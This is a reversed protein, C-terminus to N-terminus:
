ATHNRRRSGSATVVLCLSVANENFGNDTLLTDYEWIEWTGMQQGGGRAELHPGCVDTIRSGGDWLRAM